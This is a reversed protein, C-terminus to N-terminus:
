SIRKDHGDARAVVGTTDSIVFMQETHDLIFYAREYVQGPRLSINYEVISDKDAIVETQTNYTSIFVSVKAEQTPDGGVAFCLNLSVYATKRFEHRTVLKVLENATLRKKGFLGDKSNRQTPDKDDIFISPYITPKVTDFM